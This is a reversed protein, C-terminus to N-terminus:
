EGPKILSGSKVCEEVRNTMYADHLFDRAMKQLVRDDPRSGHCIFVRWGTALTVWSGNM